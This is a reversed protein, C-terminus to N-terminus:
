STCLSRRPISYPDFARAPFESASMFPRQVISSDSPISASDSTIQEAPKSFWHAFYNKNKALKKQVYSNYVTASVEEANLDSTEPVASLTEAIRLHVQDVRSLFERILVSNEAVSKLLENGSTQNFILNDLVFKDDPHFSLLTSFLRLTNVAIQERDLRDLNHKADSSHASDRDIPKAVDSEIHSSGAVTPSVALAKEANAVLLSQHRLPGSPSERATAAQRHIRYYELREVLVGQVTKSTEALLRATSADAAASPTPM